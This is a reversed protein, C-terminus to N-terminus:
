ADGGGDLTLPERGDRRRLANVIKLAQAPTVARGDIKWVTGNLRTYVDVEHGADVLTRRAMDRFEGGEFRRAPFNAIAAQEEPTLPSSMRVPVPGDLSPAATLWLGDKRVQRQKM